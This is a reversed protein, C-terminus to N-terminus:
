PESDAPILYDGRHDTGVGYLNGENDLLKRAGNVDVFFDEEDVFITPQPADPHDLEAFVNADASYLIHQTAEDILIDEPVRFLQENHPHVVYLDDGDLHLNLPDGLRDVGVLLHDDADLFVTGAPEPDVNAPAKDDPDRYGVPLLPEYGGDQIIRDVLSRPLKPADKLLDRISPM